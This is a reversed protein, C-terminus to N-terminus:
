YYIMARTEISERPREHPDSQPNQFGSHLVGVFIKSNTVAIQGISNLQLKGIQSAVQTDAQRFVVLESPM